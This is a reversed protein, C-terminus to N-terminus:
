RNAQGVIPLQESRGWAMIGGLFPPVVQRIDVPTFDDPRAFQGIIRIEELVESVAGLPKELRVLVWLFHHWVALDRIGPSTAAQATWVSRVGM